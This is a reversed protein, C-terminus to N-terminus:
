EYDSYKFDIDKLLESPTINLANAIKILTTFKFDVNALKILTVFKFNVLGNEIRSVTAPTLTSDNLAFKNLTARAERITKLNKGFLQLLEKDEEQM